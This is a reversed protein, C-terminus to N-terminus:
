VLMPDKRNKSEMKPTSLDKMFENFQAIAQSTQQLAKADTEVIKGNQELNLIAQRSLLEFREMWSPKCWEVEISDPHSLDGTKIVIGLSEKYTDIVKYPLREATEYDDHAGLWQVSEIWPSFVNVDFILGNKFFANSLFQKVRGLTQPKNVHVVVRRTEWWEIRGYQADKFVLVRNKNKSLTWGVELAARRGVSGPV